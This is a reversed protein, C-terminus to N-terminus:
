PTPRVVNVWIGGTVFLNGAPNFQVWTIGGTNNVPAAIIGGSPIVLNTATSIVSALGTTTTASSAPLTLATATSQYKGALPSNSRLFTLTRQKHTSPSNVVVTLEYNDSTKVETLTSDTAIAFKNYNANQSAVLKDIGTTTYDLDPNTPLPPVDVAIAPVLDTEAITLSGFFLLSNRKVEVFFNDGVPIVAIDDETVGIELTNLHDIVTETYQSPLVGSLDTYLSAVDSAQLVNRVIVNLDYRTVPINSTSQYFASGGGPAPRTFQIKATGNPANLKTSYRPVVSLVSIASSTLQKGAITQNSHNLVFQLQTLATM